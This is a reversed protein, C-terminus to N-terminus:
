KVEVTGYARLATGPVSLRAGQSRIFKQLRDFEYPHVVTICGESLGMRGAPHLRFNGRKIGNINTTDGSVPNWLMFWNRRDTSGFGYADWLDRLPGLYGGSQRDM